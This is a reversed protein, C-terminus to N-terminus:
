APLPDSIPVVVDDVGDQEPTLRRGLGRALGVSLLSGVALLAIWVAGLGAAILGASIAPSIVFALSYTGSSLANARGRVSDDALSVVLPTLSPAMFTEGVGFLASFGLIMANRTGLGGPLASAGFLLWSVAWIVGVVSLATTRRRGRLVRLVVLQAAVILVTNATLSLAVIRVSVHAVVTAYAPLGSDLAGYGTLAFALSLGIVRRLDPNRLVERYSGARERTLHAPAARPLTAVVAAFLLCGASNGFFLLQFTVPHALQVVAAGILGGLGVGANLCTFNIAYARQQQAPDPTLHSLLTNFAPFSPGLVAGQLLLALAATPANHALALGVQAVAQGCLLVLLVARPGVRDLLAGAIPVAALGVVGPVALLAGTTTLPIHRVSHLYILTLPLVLGTGLAGIANGVVLRRLPGSLRPSHAM